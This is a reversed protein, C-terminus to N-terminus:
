ANGGFGAHRDAGGEHKIIWEFIQDWSQKM